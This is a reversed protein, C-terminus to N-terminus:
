RNQKLIPSIHKYILFTIGTVVLGKVFTFPMNFWILCDLINEMAPNISRYMALVMEEPILAYYVPYVFFYNSAVSFVAMIAAGVFSGILANKRCKKKKYIIGAPLVFMVGLLFNALEGVGGTQTIFLHLLNKILCVLVGCAPGMSFAGVLAPLESVDLKIFEPILRPLPVELFMLVFAVASLMATVAMYHVDVKKNNVAKSKEM